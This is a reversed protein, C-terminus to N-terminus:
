FEIGEKIVVCVFRVLQYFITGLAKFFNGLTQISHHRAKEKLADIKITAKKEAINHKEELEREDTAKKLDFEVNKIKEEYEKQTELLQEREQKNLKVKLFPGEKTDINTGGKNFLKKRGM